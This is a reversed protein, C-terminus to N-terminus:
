YISHLTDIINNISKKNDKKLGGEKFKPPKFKIDRYILQKNVMPERNYLTTNM